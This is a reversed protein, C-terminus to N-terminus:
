ALRGDKRLQEAHRETALRQAERMAEPTAACPCPGFYLNVRMCAGTVPDHEDTLHNCDCGPHQAM